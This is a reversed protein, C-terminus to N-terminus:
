GELLVRRLRDLATTSAFTKVMIRDGPFLFTRVFRKEGPGDVAIAVTGVPKADTGGGPGAIGTVALGIDAAAVRRIGEAMAAAVPESVAGHEAILSEPVGLQEVKARNSYAVISRDVYDSSGAVDTLRSTVLGGTCSEAVGLRRGRTRLLDGIVEELRAASLSIVDPGFVDQVDAAARELATEAVGPERTRARLQLELMGSAALITADVAPDRAIWVRYLPQLMEEAQSETRGVLRIGRRVVREGATRPGLMERAVREFMPRMERPPGPLLIVLRDNWEFWQGPATGHRNELLTAGDIVLAQRRNIEPMSLKRSQFRARIREVIPAQENLARGAVHAVADRTLDDDTPGLGGTLVVLDARGIADRFVAALDDFRDGVVAKAVVEIGLDNLERTIFLSNTDTRDAGLLETGVAIIEARRIGRGTM